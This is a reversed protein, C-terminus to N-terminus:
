AGHSIKEHGDSLLGYPLRMLSKQPHHPFPNHPWTAADPKAFTDLEVAVGGNICIHM